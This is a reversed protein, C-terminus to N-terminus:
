YTYIDSYRSIDLEVRTPIHAFCRHTLELLNQSKLKEELINLLEPLYIVDSAAYDIQNATLDDSFWNSLRQSKDIVIDLYKSTLTKLSHDSIKPSLLKSAIKTCAINNPMVNWQFCMFRLDFMAKEDM